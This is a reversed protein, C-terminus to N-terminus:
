LKMTQPCNHQVSCFYNSSGPIPQEGDIPHHNIPAELFHFGCRVNRVVVLRWDM